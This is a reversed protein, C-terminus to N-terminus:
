GPLGGWADGLPGRLSPRQVREVAFIQRVGKTRDIGLATGRDILPESDFPRGPRFTGRLFTFSALPRREVVRRRLRSTPFNPSAEAAGLKAPPTWIALTSVPIEGLLRNGTGSRLWGIAAYRFPHIGGHCRRV